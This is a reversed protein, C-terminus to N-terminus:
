EIFFKMFNFEDRGVLWEGGQENVKMRSFEVLDEVFGVGFFVWKLFKRM